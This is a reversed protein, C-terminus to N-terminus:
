LDLIIKIMYINCYITTPFIKGLKRCASTVEM